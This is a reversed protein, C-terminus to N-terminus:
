TAHILFGFFHSRRSSADHITCNEDGDFFMEVYDSSGNCHLLGSPAPIESNTIIKTNFQFQTKIGTGDNTQANKTIEISVTNMDSVTFNGRITGGFMYWGAITPTFRSNAQSWCNGVNLDTVNWGTIKTIGNSATYAMDANNARAQFAISQNFNKTPTVIGTSSAITLGSTGDAAKINTVNLTSM